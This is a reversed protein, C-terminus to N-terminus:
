PWIDLLPPVDPPPPPPPDAASNAAPAHNAPGPSALGYYAGYMAAAAARNTVGLKAYVHQTHKKATEESCGIIRGIAWNSKGKGIWEWVERERRTLAAPGHKNGPPKSM